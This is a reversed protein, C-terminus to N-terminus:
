PAPLLNAFRFEEVYEGIALQFEREGWQEITLSLTEASDEYDFTVLPKEDGEGNSRFYAASEEVLRYSVGNHEVTVPPKGRDILYEIVMPDLEAAPRRRTVLWSENEDEDKEVFICDTAHACEYERSSSGGEWSYEHIARVQWTEGQYESICGRQLTDMTVNETARAPKKRFFDFIM